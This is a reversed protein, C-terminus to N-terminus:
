KGNFKAYRNVKHTDIYSAVAKLNNFMESDRDFVSAPNYRIVHYQSGHTTIRFVLDNILVSVEESDCTVSETETPLMPKLTDAVQQNVNALAEKDAKWDGEMYPRKEDPNTVKRMAVESHSQSQALPKKRPGINTVKKAWIPPRGHDIRYRDYSNLGHKMYEPEAAENMNFEGSNILEKFLGAVSHSYAIVGSGDKPMYADNKSISFENEDCWLQYSKGNFDFNAVKSMIDDGHLVLEQWNEVHYNRILGRRIRNFDYEIPNEEPEPEKALRSFGNKKLEANVQDRNMGKDLFAQNILQERDGKERTPDINSSECLFSLLSDIDKKTIQEMFYDKCRM